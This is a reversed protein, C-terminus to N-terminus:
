GRDEEVYPSLATRFSDPIAMSRPAHGSEIRCCVATIEGNAVTRHGAVFEFHYTVSKGGLRKLGVRVDFQEEFRLAGQFECNVSVRPWSLTWGGDQPLVVSLGLSRLLSHEADEMYTLFSSFHMIGAADTDSFRVQCPLVHVRNM